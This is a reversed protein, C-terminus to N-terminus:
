VAEILLAGFQSHLHTAPEAIAAAVCHAHRSQESTATNSWTRTATVCNSWKFTAGSSNSRHINNRTFTNHPQWVASNTDSDSM